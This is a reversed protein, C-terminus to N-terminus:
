NPLVSKRVFRSLNQRAETLNPNLALAKKYAVIAEAQKGLLEYLVGINNQVQANSRTM